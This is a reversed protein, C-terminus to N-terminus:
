IKSKESLNKTINLEEEETVSVTIRKNYKLRRLEIYVFMSVLVNYFDDFYGHGVMLSLSLVCSLYFYEPNTQFFQFSFAILYGYLGIMILFPVFGSEGLVLLYSNHVGPLISTKQRMKGFGNGFFPKDAILETYMAWTATRSDDTITSTQIQKDSEFISQLAQFRERNLSLLSSLALLVIIVGAGIVPVILNRKSYYISLFNILLWIVIFGRSFTFIGALTFILQGAIRYWKIKMSYSLAFGVLCISGAFNPNLYFGSYRGYTPYFNANALPFLTANVIVSLAGLFLIVYIEKKNTRYLVENACIVVIMFRAFEKIFDSALGISYNLGSLTFYLIGLLIFPFQPKHKERTFFFYLLLLLSSAYSATSGLTVGFYARLYSPINGLILFLIIFRIGNMIM